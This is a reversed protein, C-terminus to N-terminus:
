VVERVFALFEEYSSVARFDTEKTNWPRLFLIPHRCHSMRLHAPNDDLMIDAQIMSKDQTVFSGINPFETRLFEKRMKACQAPVSTVITVDALSALEQIFEKAGTYVPQSRVFEPDNFYCLRSDLENGMLGWKSIDSFQFHNGTANNLLELAFQNCPVLVDDCDIIVSKM